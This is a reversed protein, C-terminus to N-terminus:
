DFFSRKRKTCLECKKQHELLEINYEMAFTHVNKFGGYIYSVHKFGETNM